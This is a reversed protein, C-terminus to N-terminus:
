PPAARVSHFHGQVWTDARRLWLQTVWSEAEIPAPADVRQMRTRMRGTMLAVDGFVRVRLESREVSLFHLTQLSAGSSDPIAM